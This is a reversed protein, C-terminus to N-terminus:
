WFTTIPVSGIVLLEQRLSERAAHEAPSAPHRFAVVGGPSEYADKLVDMKDRPLMLIRGSGIVIPCNEASLDRFEAMWDGRNAADLFLLDVYWDRLCSERFYVLGTPDLVREEQTTHRRLARLLAIEESLAPRGFERPYARTLPIGGGMAFQLALAGCSVAVIPRIRGAAVLARISDILLIAGFPVLPAMMHVWPRPHAAIAALPVTALAGAVVAPERVAATRLRRRLTDVGAVAVATWFWTETWIGPAMSRWPARRDSLELAAIGFGLYLGAVEDLRGTAVAFLLWMAPPVAAGALLRASSRVRNGGELGAFAACVLLLGTAFFLGKPHHCAAFGAAAGALTWRPPGQCALSGLVTLEALLLVWEYRFELAHIAFSDEILVLALAGLCAVRSRTASRIAWTLAGLVTGVVALRFGLFVAGPDEVWTAVAGLALTLPMTFHPRADLQQYSLWGARLALM